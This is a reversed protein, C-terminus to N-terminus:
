SNGLLIYILLTIGCLAISVPRTYKWSSLDVAGVDTVEYMNKRPSFYSVGYMIAVNLLFEIGWLHIFHIGHSTYFWSMFIYFVLGFILASKAALASVKKM